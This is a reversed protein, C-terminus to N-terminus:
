NIKYIIITNPEGLTVFEPASNKDINALDILANGYVPFNDLLKAQSNYLYTKQSQLDTISVYIKNNVLFLSPKTYNGYDLQIKKGKIQLINDSFAVLTKSTSVINHSKSLKLDQTNIRGKNNISILAGNKTTTIFNNNYIYVAEKSLPTNIKTKVRTKGQRNLIYIDKETKIVIYDKNGIKLHKPTTIITNKAKKFSFGKVIKGKVDYMFVRKGQTVLLRYKKNNDYDFVSLPQTIDDKFTIPYGNVHNGNKDLIYLQNKTTFVFQLKKNKFMDVQKVRGIIAGNISKKWRTKGTNTILHLNNNIDQVLIDKQKTSYNKVFQPTGIINNELKIQLHEKVKQKTTKATANKIVGNIHYFNVDSILQFAINKNAIGRKKKGNSLVQMLSAEDSLQTKMTKFHNSQSLTTKNQHNSIIKELLNIDESFIFFREIICYKSAQATILPYLTKTFFSPKSYNFIPVQRFTKIVNQEAILLEKTAVEDLVNLVIAKQNNKYIVGIESCANFLSFGVTTTDKQNFLDLNKKFINFDNFTYSIAADYDEPTIEFVKNEQATTNKFISVFNKTSDTNNAIGNFTIQEEKTNLDIAIHSAFRNFPISKNIFPSTIFTDKVATIINVANNKNLSAYAKILSKQSAQKQKTINNKQTSAIFTSDVIKSYLTMHNIRHKKYTKNQEVVTEESYNLLDKTNLLHKHHKTAFTFNVSDKVDLALLFEDQINLNNFVDLHNELFTNKTNKSIKPILTTFNINNLLSDINTTRVIVNSYEPMYSLLRKKSTNTKNCGFLFAVFLLAAFYSKM